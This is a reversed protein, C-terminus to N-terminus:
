SVVGLRSAAVKELGEDLSLSTLALGREEAEDPHPSWGTVFCARGTDGPPVSLVVTLCACPHGPSGPAGFRPEQELCAPAEASGPGLFEARDLFGGTPWPFAFHYLVGEFVQPSSPGSRGIFLQGPGQRSWAAVPHPGQGQGLDQFSDLRMWLCRPTTNDVEVWWAEAQLGPLVAVTLRACLPGQRSQYRIWGPGQVAAEAETLSRSCGQCTLYVTRGPGGESLWGEDVPPHGRFACAGGRDTWVAGYSADGLVRSWPPQLRGEVDCARGEEAPPRPVGGQLPSTSWSM